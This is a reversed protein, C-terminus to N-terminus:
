YAHITGRPMERHCGRFIYIYIFVNFFVSKLFMSQMKTVCQQLFTNGGSSRVQQEALVEARVKAAIEAEKVVMAEKVRRDIEAQMAAPSGPPPGGPVTETYEYRRLPHLAPSIHHSFTELNRVTTLMFQVFTSRMRLVFM